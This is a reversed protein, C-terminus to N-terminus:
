VARADLLRRRIVHVVDDFRDHAASADDDGGCQRIGPAGRVRDLVVTEGRALEVGEVSDDGAARDCDGLRPRENECASRDLSASRQREYRVQVDADNAGLLDDLRDRLCECAQASELAARQGEDRARRCGRVDLQLADLAHVAGSREGDDDELLFRSIVWRTPNTKRTFGSLTASYTRAWPATHGSISSASRPAPM